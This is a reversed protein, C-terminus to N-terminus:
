RVEAGCSSRDDSRVEATWFRKGAVLWFWAWSFGAYAVLFGFVTRQWIGYHGIICGAVVDGVALARYGRKMAPEIAHGQTIALTMFLPLGSKGFFHAALATRIWWSFTASSPLLSFTGLTAWLVLSLTFSLARRRSKPM